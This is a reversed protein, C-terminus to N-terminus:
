SAARSSKRERHCWMLISNYISITSLWSLFAAGLFAVTQPSVLPKICNTSVPVVVVLFVFLALQRPLTMSKVAFTGRMPDGTGQIICLGIGLEVGIVLGAWQDQSGIHKPWSFLLLLLAGAAIVVSMLLAANRKGKLERFRHRAVAELRRPDEPNEIAKIIRQVTENSEPTKSEEAM